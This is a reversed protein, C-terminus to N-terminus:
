SYLRASESNPNESSPRKLGNCSTARPLMPPWKILISIKLGCPWRRAWGCVRMNDVFFLRPVGARRALALEYGSYPSYGLKETSAHRPIISVFGSSELMYREQKAVCWTSSKQDVRFAADERVFRDLFYSNISRDRYSHGFYVQRM